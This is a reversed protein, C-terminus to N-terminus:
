RVTVRKQWLRFSARERMKVRAAQGTAPVVLLQWLEM